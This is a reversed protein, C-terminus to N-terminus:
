KNDFKRILDAVYEQQELTIEPYLPIAFTRKSLKESVPLDGEKYGLYEYVNQLHLPVPYYIGTAVGNDKLFRLLEEREEHQLIYLHYIHKCKEDEYPTVCKTNALLENYKHAKEKRANNWDDIHKFKVNLIAAQIEDLRSNYGIMDHYYKIKSGHFRLMRITQAVEDDNTVIMGGDGYGGLNKTPFFSFCAAHGISGAKKGKYEAGIAQCADEIVILNHKEAIEMIRDMDCMQGFIHVAIIAKTKSTIKEEIKNEDICYTKEDVDVFVPTAGVQSVTEASAFFTFPTTIVEDGEGIGFAKLTLVLADTGNAVGIGHKVGCYNAIDEELKKVEPGLIYHGSEITNIVADKIEDKITEYQAKLDLLQLEM